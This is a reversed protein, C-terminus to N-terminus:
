STTTPVVQLRAQVQENKIRTKWYSMRIAEFNAVAITDAYRKRLDSETYSELEHWDDLIWIPLGLAACAEADVTRKVIPITRLYLAEWTRHSGLTGGAPSVTFAYSALIKKYSFYPVFTRITDMAPHTKFYELAPGREPPNTQVSFHFFIRTKKAKQKAARKLFFSFVENGHHKNEIGIPIPIIKEHKKAIVIQAYFRIIKDDIYAAITDDVMFDGNHQILIYRNLIYPHVANFFENMQPSGVFVIDGTQVRTPDFTSTEDYIHQALKRFSDGTIYPSSDPRCRLTHFISRFTKRLSKFFVGEIKLLLTEEIPIIM